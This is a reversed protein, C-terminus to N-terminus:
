RVPAACKPCFHANACRGASPTGTCKMWRASLDGQPPHPVHLVLHHLIFLCICRGITSTRTGKVADMQKGGGGDVGGQREREVTEGQLFNARTCLATAAALQGKGLAAPPMALSTRGADFQPRPKQQPFERYRATIPQPVRGRLFLSSSVPTISHLLSSPCTHSQASLLLM